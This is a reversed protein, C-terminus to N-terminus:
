QAAEMYIFSCLRYETEAEKFKIVKEKRQGLIKERTEDSFLEAYSDLDKILDKGDKWQEAGAKRYEVAYMRKVTM